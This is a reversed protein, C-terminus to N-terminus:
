GISTNTPDNPNKKIIFNYYYMASWWTELFVRLIEQIALDGVFNQLAIYSMAIIGSIIFVTKKGDRGRRVKAYQILEAIFPWLILNYLTEM